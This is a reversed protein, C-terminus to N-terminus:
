QDVKRRKTNREDRWSGICSFLNQKHNSRELIVRAHRFRLLANGQQRYKNFLATHLELVNLNFFHVFCTKKRYLFSRKEHTVDPRM